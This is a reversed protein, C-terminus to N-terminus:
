PRIETFTPKGFDWMMTHTPLVEGALFQQYLEWMAGDVEAPCEHYIAFRASGVEQTTASMWQLDTTSRLVKGVGWVQLYRTGSGTVGTVIKYDGFLTM